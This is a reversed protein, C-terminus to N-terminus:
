TSTGTVVSIVLMCYMFTSKGSTSTLDLKRQSYKAM